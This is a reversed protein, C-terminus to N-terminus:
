LSQMGLRTLFHYSQYMGSRRSDKVERKASTFFIRYLREARSKVSDKIYFLGPMNNNQPAIIFRFVNFYHLFWVLCHKIEKFSPFPLPFLPWLYSVQLFPQTHSPCLPFTLVFYFFFLSITVKINKTFGLHLTLIFVM